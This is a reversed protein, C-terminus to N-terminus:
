RKTSQQKTKTMTSKPTPNQRQVAANSNYNSPTKATRRHVYGSRDYIRNHKGFEGDAAAGREPTHTECPGQVGECLNEATLNDQTACGAMLLASLGAILLQKM